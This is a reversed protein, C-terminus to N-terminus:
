RVLMLLGATLLAGGSIRNGNRGFLGMKEFAVFLTLALIVWLNMVGGVFLLLMLAWCCGLCHLGHELGMRFAGPAGDRWRGMMFGLPSQCVKLCARKLPTWQYIGALVLLVAGVIPNTLEMMPSILLREAFWRQAATTLISFLTWVTMYGTALTYILHHPNADRRNRVAAGYILLM